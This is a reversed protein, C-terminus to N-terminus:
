IKNIKTLSSNIFKLTNETEMLLKTENCCPCENDKLSCIDHDIEKCEKCYKKNKM